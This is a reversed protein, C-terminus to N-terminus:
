LVSKSFVLPEFPPLRGGCLSGVLTRDDHFELKPMPEEFEEDDQSPAPLSKRASTPAHTLGMETIGKIEDDSKCMDGFVLKFAFLKLLLEGGGGDGFTLSVLDCKVKEGAWMLILALEMRLSCSVAWMGFCCIIAIEDDAVVAVVAGAVMAVFEGNCLFFAAATSAIFFSKPVSNRLTTGNDEVFSVSTKM